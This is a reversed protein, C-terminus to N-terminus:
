DLDKIFRISAFVTYTGLSADNNVTLTWDGGTTITTTFRIHDTTGGIDTTATENHTIGEALATNFASIMITGTRQVDKSPGRVVYDVIAGLYETANLDTIVDSSSNQSVNLRTQRLLTSSLSYSPNSGIELDKGVNVTNTTSVSGTITVTDSLDSQGFYSSGSIYVEGNQEIKLRWDDVDVNSNGAADLNALLLRGRGWDDEDTNEFFIGGKIRDDGDTDETKFKIGAVHDIGADYPADTEILIQANSGSKFHATYLPNSTGIGLNNNVFTFNADSTITNSDGYYTIRNAAGTGDILSSGWVRSDIEDTVLQGSSNRVVVSNDTGAPMNSVTLGNVTVNNTTSAGNDTVQQLTQSSGSSDISALSASVSGWDDITVDSGTISSEVNLSGSLYAGNVDVHFRSNTPHQGPTGSDTSGANPEELYFGIRRNDRGAQNDIAAFWTEYWLQGMGYQRDNSSYWNAFKVKITDENYAFFQFGSGNGQLRDNVELYDISGTGNVDISNLIADSGSVIVKKWNPM